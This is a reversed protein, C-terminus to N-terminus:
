TNSTVAPGDGTENQNKTETATNTEPVGVGNSRCSAAQNTTRSSTTSHNALRFSKKNKRKKTKAIMQGDGGYGNHM